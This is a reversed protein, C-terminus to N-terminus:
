DLVAAICVPYVHACGLNKLVHTLAHISSGTTVVDDLIMVRRYRQKVPQRVIFQEEIQSIRELRSLGKQSHQALREVPQWVPINLHRALSQALLLSQNYGREILRQESIPMPVIAQVRPLPLTLLLSSLLNQHHLRDHYKFQQVIQNIPYRYECAALIKLEHRTVHEKFWPLEQWCEKCLMYEQHQPSLECLPCPVFEKKLWQFTSTFLSSMLMDRHM